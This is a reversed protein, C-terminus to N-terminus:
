NHYFCIVKPETMEQLSFKIGERGLGSNKVGGFPMSDLRYDTSDNIMVGGCDIEYAAKFALDVDKTFVAAHLGYELSNAEQIAQDFDDIAFLNVAPGFVEENAISMDPTVGTLVTPELFAGPINMKRGGAAVTAGASVADSVM